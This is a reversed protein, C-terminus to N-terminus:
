VPRMRSVDRRTPVSIRYPMEFAVSQDDIGDADRSFRLRSRHAKESRRMGIRQMEDLAITKELVALRENTWPTLIRRGVVYRHSLAFDYGFAFGQSETKRHIVRACVLLWPRHCQVEQGQLRRDLFVDARLIILLLIQQREDGSRFDRIKSPAGGAILAAMPSGGM